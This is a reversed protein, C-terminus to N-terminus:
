RRVETDAPCMRFKEVLKKSLFVKVIKMIWNMWTPTNCMVTIEVLQPYIKEAMKSSEGFANM